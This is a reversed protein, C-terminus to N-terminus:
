RKGGHSVSTTQRDISAMLGTATEKIGALGPNPQDPRRRGEPDPPPTHTVELKRQNGRLDDPVGRAGFAPRRHPERGDLGGCPGVVVQTQKFARAALM